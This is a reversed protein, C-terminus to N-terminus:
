EPISSLNCGASGRIAGGVSSFEEEGVSILLVSRCCKKGGLGEGGGGRM